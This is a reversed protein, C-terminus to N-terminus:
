NVDFFRVAYTDSGMWANWITEHSLGVRVGRNIFEGNKIAPIFKMKKICEILEKESGKPAKVNKFITINRPNGNKDVIFDIYIAQDGSLRYRRGRTEMINQFIQNIHTRGNYKYNVDRDPLETTYTRNDYLNISIKPISDSQVTSYYEVDREELSLVIKNTDFNKLINNKLVWNQKKDYKYKSESSVVLGNYGKVNATELIQNGNNDYAYKYISNISNGADKGNYSVRAGDPAMISNTKEILRKNADYKYATVSRGEEIRIPLNNKYKTIAIQKGTNDYWVEDYEINSIHKLVIKITLNNNKDYETISKKKGSEYEFVLRTGESNNLLESLNNNDDYKCIYETVVENNDRKDFKRYIFSTLLNNDGYNYKETSTVNDNDYFCWTLKKQKTFVYQYIGQIDGKVTEGFKEETNYERGIVYFVDGKYQKETNKLTTIIDKEGILQANASFLCFLCSLFLTIKNM